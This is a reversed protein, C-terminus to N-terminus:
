ERIYEKRVEELKSQLWSEIDKVEKNYLVVCDDYTDTFCRSYVSVAKSWSLSVGDKKFPVFYKISTYGNKRRRECDTESNGLTLMGRIPKQFLHKSNKDKAYDFAYAWVTDGEKYYNDVKDYKVCKM